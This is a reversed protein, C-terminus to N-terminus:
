IKVGLQLLLGTLMNPALNALMDPTLNAQELVKPGIAQIAQEPTIAGSTFASVANDTVRTTVEDMVNEKLGLAHERAMEYIQDVHNAGVAILLWSVFAMLVKIIKPVVVKAGGIMKILGGFLAIKVIQDDDNLSAIAQPEDGFVESLWISLRNMVDGLDFKQNAGLTLTSDIYKGLDSLGYGFAGAIKELVFVVWGLGPVFPTAYSFLRFFNQFPGENVRWISLIQDGVTEMAGARKSIYLNDSSAAM